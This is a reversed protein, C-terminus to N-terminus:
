RSSSVGCATTAKTTDTHKELEVPTFGGFVNEGIDLIVTLTNARGDCCRHFETGGFSYDSGRWLLNFHKARFEEFLPPVESIIVSDLRAAPLPVVVL